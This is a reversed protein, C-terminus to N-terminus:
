TLYSLVSFTAAGKGELNLSLKSPTSIVIGTMSMEDKDEVNDGDGTGLDGLQESM